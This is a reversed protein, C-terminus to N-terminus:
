CLFDRLINAIRLAGNGDVLRQMEESRKQRLQRDKRYRELYQLIKGAPNEYRADGAYDIMGDEQFQRVNDLQNDAFSYSITPTGCACLEYLTTGGASIVIDAHKMYPAIESVSQCIHINRYPQYRDKLAKYDANYRGCIVTINQYTEIPMQHLLDAMVHYPDTGGSLLLINEASDKIEKEGCHCFAQRLPVYGTGMYLKTGAYRDEYHFKKWYSAYCIVANVPYLFANMDDLYITRTQSTVALLYRDTVQYSDILLVKIGEKRIIESLMPLEGEMDKWQTHMVVARFGRQQLLESAQGDALIFTTDEGQIRAAEAISLCRMMHGTAIIDNM